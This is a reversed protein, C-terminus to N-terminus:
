AAYKHVSFLCVFMVACYLVTLVTCYLVVCYLVTCNATSHCGLARTMLLKKYHVFKSSPKFLFITSCQVTSYHVTSYQVTSYQVTSYQVTSYQTSYQLAFKMFHTANYKKQFTSYVTCQVSYVTCQVPSQM